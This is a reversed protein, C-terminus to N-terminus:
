NRAKLFRGISSKCIGMIQAIQRISKGNSRLIFIDRKIEDAWKIM